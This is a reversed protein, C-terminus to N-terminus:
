MFTDFRMNEAWSNLNDYNERSRNPSISSAGNKVLIRNEKPDYQYITAIYIGEEPAVLSYCSNGVTPEIPELGAFNRIITEAVLKAMGNAVVGSKPMETISSDIADGIVYVDNFIASEFSVPNVPAWKKGDPVLNLTFALEGAKQNPIFNILDGTFTGKDTVIANKGKDFYQVDTNPIYTVVDSYLEKFGAEFLPAKSAIKPNPDLIIVKCDNKKAFDCMLSSREYPGPPCRYIVKPTRIVMTSGKKTNRVMDRLQVTQAGGIWAHPYKAQMEADFGKDVPYDMSIGPSVILKDYSLEGASTQVTKKIPDLGKVDAHVFKVGYKDAINKHPFTIYSIDRFGFIVENSMACSVHSEFRDVMTVDLSSDLMKLYKAATSGGYGGGLVLVKKAAPVAASKKTCGLASVAMGAAATKIFSRRTINM